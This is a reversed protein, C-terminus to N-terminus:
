PSIKETKVQHLSKARKANIIGGNGNEINHVIWCEDNGSRCTISRVVELVDGSNVKFKVKENEYIKDPQQIMIFTKIENPQSHTVKKEVESLEVFVYSLWEKELEQLNKGYIKKYNVQFGTKYLEKFKQDGYKEYLFSVFSGSEIFGLKVIEPEWYGKRKYKLWNLPILNDRNIRVLDHISLDPTDYNYFSKDEGFKEQFFVGLGIRYVEDYVVSWQTPMVIVSSILQVIPAIKNNVHWVPLLISRNVWEIRCEGKQKVIRIKIKKNFEVGLIPPISNLAIEAEKRVRDIDSQSVYKLKASIKIQSRQIDKSEANVPILVGTSSSFSILVILLFFKKLVEHM